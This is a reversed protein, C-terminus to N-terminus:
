AVHAPVASTTCGTWSYLQAPLEAPLWGPMITAMWAFCREFDLAALWTAWTAQSTSHRNAYYQVAPTIATLLKEYYEDETLPADPGLFLHGLAIEQWWFVAYIGQVPSPLPPRIPALDLRIHKIAHPTFDAM